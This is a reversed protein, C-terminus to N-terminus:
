IPKRRAVPVIRRGVGSDVITLKSRVLIKGLVCLNIFPPSPPIRVWPVSARVGTKSVPVNLWETVEGKLCMYM